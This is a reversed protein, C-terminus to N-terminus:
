VKNLTAFHLDLVEYALFCFYGTLTTILFPTFNQMGLLHGSLLIILLFGVRFAHIALGWFPSEGAYFYVAKRNLKNGFFGNASVLLVGMSLEKFFWQGFCLHLISISLLVSFAFTLMFYRNVTWKSDDM